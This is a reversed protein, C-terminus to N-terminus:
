NFLNEELAEKVLGKLRRSVPISLDIDKFYIQEGNLEVIKSKNVVYGQHVQLFSEMDLKKIIDKLTGYFKYTDDRTYVKVKRLVKEFCYIDNTNLRIIKDKTKFSFIKKTSQYEKIQKYRLLVEKMVRNFKGETIPKIIYNFARIEFANLAYDKFGTIYVIIADKNLKRIRRGVEIGNYNEMEIDLFAIDIQIKELNEILKSSSTEKVITFDNRYAQLLSSIFEVQNIEDDCVLIQISM